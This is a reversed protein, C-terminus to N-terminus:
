AIASRLQEEQWNKANLGCAEFFNIWKQRNYNTQPHHNHCLLVLNSLDNETKNYNIHHIDFGSRKDCFPCTYNFIAYIKKRFSEGFQSRWWGKRKAADGKWAPHKEGKRYNGMCDMCCFNTKRVRTIIREITKGCGDCSVNLRPLYDPHDKGKKGYMGNKLGLHSLRSKEKYENTQMVDYLKKRKEENQFPHIGQRVKLKMQIRSKQGIRKRITPDKIYNIKGQDSQSRTPINYYLLYKKITSRSHEMDKSIELISKQEIVYKNYLADKDIKLRISDLGDVISQRHKKIM